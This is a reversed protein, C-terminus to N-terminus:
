QTTVTASLSEHRRRTRGLLGSKHESKLEERIKAEIPKIEPAQVSENQAFDKRIASLISLDGRPGSGGGENSMERVLFSKVLTFKLIM